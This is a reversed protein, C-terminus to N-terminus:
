EYYKELDKYVTKGSENHPISDVKVTKFAVINLKTKEALYEKM